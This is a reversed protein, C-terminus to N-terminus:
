LGPTQNTRLYTLMRFLKRAWVTKSEVGARKTRGNDENSWQFRTSVLCHFPLFGPRVKMFVSFKWLGSHGPAEEAADRKRRNGERYVYDVKSRLLLCPSASQRKFLFWNGEYRSFVEHNGEPRRCRLLRVFFPLSVQNSTLSRLSSTKSPAQWM